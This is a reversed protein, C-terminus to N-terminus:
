FGIFGRRREKRKEREKNREERKKNGCPVRTRVDYTRSFIQPDM